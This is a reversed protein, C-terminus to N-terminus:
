SKKEQWEFIVRKEKPRKVILKNFFYSGDNYVLANKDKLRKIYVNLTNFDEIGLSEAIQKKVEASFVSIGLDKLEKHKDLFAALVAMEKNTLEFMGNLVRLYQKTNRLTIRVVKTEAPDTKNM